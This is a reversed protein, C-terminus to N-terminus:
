AEDAKEEWKKVIDDHIAQLVSEIAEFTYTCVELGIDIDGEEDMRLGPISEVATWTADSVNSGHIYLGHHVLHNRLTAIKMIPAWEEKNPRRLQGHKWLFAKAAGIRNNTPVRWEQGSWLAADSAIEVIMKEFFAFAAIVVSARHQEPFSTEWRHPRNLALYKRQQNEPLKTAQKELKRLRWDKATTLIREIQTHYERHEDLGHIAFAVGLSGIVGLNYDATSM